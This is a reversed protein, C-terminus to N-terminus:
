GMQQEFDAQQEAYSERIKYTLMKRLQQSPFESCTLRIQGSAIPNNDNSSISAQYIGYGSGERILQSTTVLKTGPNVFDRFRTKEVGMLFAMKSFDSRIISLYSSTQAMVEILLVGPLVEFTPFHGEFVPSTKPVTSLCTVEDKSESISLTKDIMNFKELIM